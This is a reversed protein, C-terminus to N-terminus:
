TAKMIYLSNTNLANATVELVMCAIFLGYMLVYVFMHLAVREKLRTGLPLLQIEVRIRIGLLAETGPLLM